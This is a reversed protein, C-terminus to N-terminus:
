GENGILVTESRRERREGKIELQTATRGGAEGERAAQRVGPRSEEREGKHERGILM